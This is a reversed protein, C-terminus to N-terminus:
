PRPPHHPTEPQGSPAEPPSVEPPAALKAVEAPGADLGPAALGQAIAGTPDIAAEVRRRLAASDTVTDLQSKVEKLESERMMEDIGHQFEAAMARAKRTWRGAQRLVKPLDKPGIVILTVVAILAMEDWGFDFM